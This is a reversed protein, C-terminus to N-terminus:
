CLGEPCIHGHSCLFGELSNGVGDEGGQRGKCGWICRRSGEAGLARSGLPGSGLGRGAGRGAEQLCRFFWAPNMNASGDLPQVSGCRFEQAVELGELWWREGGGGRQPAAQPNQGRTGWWAWCLGQSCAPRLEPGTQHSANGTEAQLCGEPADGRRM